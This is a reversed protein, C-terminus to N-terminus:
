IEGKFDKRQDMGNKITKISPKYSKKKAEKRASEFLLKVYDILYKQDNMISLKQNQFIQLHKELNM